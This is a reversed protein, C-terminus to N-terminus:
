LCFRCYTTLSYGDPVNMSSCNKKKLCNERGREETERGTWRTAFSFIVRTNCYCRPADVLPGLAENGQARRLATCACILLFIHLFLLIVFRCSSWLCCGLHQGSGVGPGLPRGHGAPLTGPGPLGGGNWAGALRPWEVVLSLLSERRVKGPM